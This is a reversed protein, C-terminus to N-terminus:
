VFTFSTKCPGGTANVRRCRARMESDRGPFPDTAPRPRGPGGRNAAGVHLELIYVGDRRVLPLRRGSAVHLIEGYDEMFTVKCGAAAMRSVSILPREVAAVQFPIGCAKGNEDRFHALLQGLNPIPSGNAARYCRGARSMPSPLVEERFLNPPTVSEEAGSDVVAEIIEPGRHNSVPAVLPEERRDGCLLALRRAAQRARQSGRRQVWRPNAFGAGSAPCCECGGVTGPVCASARGGSVPAEPVAGDDCDEEQALEEYRNALRVEGFNAAQSAEALQGLYWPWASEQAAAQISDSADETTGGAVERVGGGSGGGAAGRAAKLKEM